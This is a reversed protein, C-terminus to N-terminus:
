WERPGSGPWPGHTLLGMDSGYGGEVFARWPENEWNRRYGEPASTHHIGDPEATTLWGLQGSWVGPAAFTMNDEPRQSRQVCAHVAMALAITFDIKHASTAKTIQFGGRSTEKAVSHAISQRIQEDPYVLLNGGKILEYLTGGIETLNGVTQQYEKMPVGAKLLRQASSALQHPDYLVKRVAFRRCFDLVTNEVVEFDIPHHKTPVFIRHSVLQPKKFQQSWAVVAIATWDHKVSGDLGIWVPLSKDAVVPSLNPDVCRRWWAMEVFASETTVFRNEAMRAYQAPRLSRRM